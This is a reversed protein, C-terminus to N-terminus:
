AHRRAMFCHTFPLAAREQLHWAGDQPWLASLEGGRFGARVSVVADHRSVDNCGIVFLLRSGLLARPSRLPECAVFLSSMASVAAFLDRLAEDSFHHLFLNATVIDAGQGGEALFAFVDASVSETRWGLAGFAEHTERRVINQRDVFTLTVDPWHKALRRAVALMFTGDGAGLEVIRRPASSRNALLLRTMISAQLMWGNIRKLDRRSRRARPDDHPLEDLWEPEVRRPLSASM